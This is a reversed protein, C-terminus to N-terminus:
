PLDPTSPAEDSFRFVSGLGTVDFLRRLSTSPCILTPRGGGTLRLLAAIGSSDILSVDTLDLTLADGGRDLDSMYASFHEVTYVDLAGVLRM